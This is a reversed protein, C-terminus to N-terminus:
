RLARSLGHLLDFAGATASRCELEIKKVCLAAAFQERAGDRLEPRNTNKTLERRSM